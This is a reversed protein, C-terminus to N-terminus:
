PRAAGDARDPDRRDDVVMALRTGVQDALVAAVRRQELTPRAHRTSSTLLFRGYPVGDHEVALTVLDDTPMGHRGVDVSAERQTVSGDRHLVSASRAQPHDRPEFRCGDIGLVETIRGAVQEALEQPASDRLAVLDAVRLVGDLYGARRSARAQQRRGWMAIETVAFGAVLLLLAVEVDDRDLVTFSLFPETLFFDFWAGASLAALVGAVRMGSAAAVVVVLVLTLASAALTVRDGALHLVAAVAVPALLAFAVVASARPQRATGSVPSGGSMGSIESM